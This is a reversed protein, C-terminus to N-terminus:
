EPVLGFLLISNHFPYAASIRLLPSISTQVFMAGFQRSPLDERFAIVCVSEHAFVHEDIRTYLRM